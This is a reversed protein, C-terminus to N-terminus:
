NSGRWEYFGKFRSEERIVAWLVSSFSEYSEFKPLYLRRACTNARPLCNDRIPLFEGSPSVIPVVEIEGPTSIPVSTVFNLFQRRQTPTSKLLTKILYGITPSSSSFRRSLTAGGEGGIAAVAVLAETAGKAGDMKFLNKIDEETWQDVRDSGGCVDCQLELATFLQLYEAPFFDNIGERFAKAQEIVGDRLIFQKALRVWERVNFITVDREHGNVCLPTAQLGQSADLPDVFTKGDVYEEFSCEYAKGFANQAFKRNAAVQLYLKETEDERIDMADIRDLEKCIHHEIAFVDGGLFGPRPLDHSTLTEIPGRVLRRRNAAGGVDSSLRTGTTPTNEECSCEDSADDPIASCAERGSLSRVPKEIITETYPLRLSETSSPPFNQVLSLFSCSLPLPFMFGERIACAFVRGIFRFQQKVAKMKPDDHALPRPYVGPTSHPNARPTPIVQKGSTDLDPIWLPLKPPERSIDAHTSAMWDSQTMMSSWGSCLAICTSSSVHHCSLLAEAVDAYFGRTVGAEDGSAADFGSEGQFRIELRRKKVMSESAYREMVTAADIVLKDRRIAAKACQLSREFWRQARFAAHMRAGLAEEMGYLEDAQLQLATPDEAGGSFAEGVLEVARGRLAAMRQRLPAVNVKAEQLRMAARSVGFATRELLQRRSDYSFLRPALSPLETCWSPLAGGVVALSQGLQKSLKETLSRSELSADIIDLLHSRGTDSCESVEFSFESENVFRGISNILQMCSLTLAEAQITWPLSPQISRVVGHSEPMVESDSNLLLKKAEALKVLRKSSSIRSPSSAHSDGSISHVFDLRFYLAVNRDLKLAKSDCQTGQIESLQEFAAVLTIDGSGLDVMPQSDDVGFLFHFQPAKEVISGSLIEILYGGIDCEITPKDNDLDDKSQCADLDVPSLEDLLALASWTRRLLSVGQLQSPDIPDDDAALGRLAIMRSSRDRVSAVVNDRLSRARSLLADQELAYKIQQQPIRRLVEGSDSVVDYELVNRDLSDDPNAQSCGIITYPKSLREVRTGRPLAEAPFFKTASESVEAAKLVSLVISKYEDRKANTYRQLVIYDTCGIFIREEIDEFAILESLNVANPDVTRIDNFVVDRAMKTAYKM